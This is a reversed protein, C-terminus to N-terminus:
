VPEVAFIEDYVFVVVYGKLNTEKAWEESSLYGRLQRKGEELAQQAKARDEKKVYKFEFAFQFNPALPKRALLMVDAYKKGVETESRIFYVNTLNILAIFVMKLHKEDFQIADRVSLRKLTEQMKEVIPGLDNQQALALIAQTANWRDFQLGNRKSIESSFFDIYLKWIVYNPVALTSILGGEKLTLFGMYYLLSAFDAQTFDREFSFEPTIEFTIERGQVLDDLVQFNEEPSKLYFLGRIKGYDSAINHDLMSKPYKGAAKFHLAFYLVMDPNYLRKGADESFLYGNYWRKLDDMLPALDRGQAVGGVVGEAEQATFGMMENFRPDRSLDTRINFGSTLSDLTIPTVGTVFLREVLNSGTATKISEYFKRVFGNRSVMDSFSSFNFALIENSFHDYEDIMLYIPTSAVGEYWTFFLSLMTAPRDQALISQREAESFLGYTNMFALLGNRVQQLFGQLTSEPTKTDIRSFEFYLVRYGNAKPTPHQGIHLHGFLRGFAEQHEMGYYYRLMSVFLSKGFRRPRLFFHYSTDLQELLAIYHTKDVLHYDETVLRAFDSIGYPIKIM